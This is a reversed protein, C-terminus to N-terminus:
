RVLLEIPALLSDWTEPQFGVFVDPGWLKYPKLIEYKYYRFVKGKPPNPDVFEFHAPYGLEIYQEGIFRIINGYILMHWDLELESHAAEIYYSYEQQDFTVNNDSGQYANPDIWQPCDCAYAAYMLELTDVTNNLELNVDNSLLQLKDVSEKIHLNAIAQASDFPLANKSNTDCSVNDRNHCSILLIIFVFFYIKKM